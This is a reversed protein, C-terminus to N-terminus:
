GHERTEHGPPTQTQHIHDQPGQCGSTVRGQTSLPLSSVTFEFFVIVFVFTPSVQNSDAEM